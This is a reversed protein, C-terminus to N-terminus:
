MLYIIAFSDFNTWILISAQESENKCLIRQFNFHGPVLKWAVNKM